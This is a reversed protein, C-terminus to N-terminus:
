GCAALPPPPPPPRATSDSAALRDAMVTCSILSASVCTRLPHPAPHLGILRIRNLCVPTAPLTHRPLALGSLPLEIVTTGGSVCTRIHQQMHTNYRYQMTNLTATHTITHVYPESQRHRDVCVRKYLLTHRWTRTIPTRLEHRPAPSSPSRPRWVSSGSAPLTGTRFRHRPIGTRTRAGDRGVVAAAHYRYIMCGLSVAM